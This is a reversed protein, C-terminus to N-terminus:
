APFRSRTPPRTGSSGIEASDFRRPDIRAPENPDLDRASTAHLRQRPTSPSYGSSSLGLLPAPQDPIEGNETSRRVRHPSCPGSPSSNPAPAPLRLRRTTLTGLASATSLRCPEMRLTWDGSPNVRSVAAPHFLGALGAASSLTAPPLFASSACLASVPYGPNDRALLPQQRSVDHHPAFGWPLREPRAPQFAREHLGPRTALRPAGFPCRTRSLIFRGTLRHPVTTSQCPGARAFGRLRGDICRGLLSCRDM